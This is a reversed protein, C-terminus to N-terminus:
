ACTRNGGKGNCFDAPENVGIRCVTRAYKRHHPAFKEENQQSNYGNFYVNHNDEFQETFYKVRQLFEKENQKLVGRLYDFLIIQDNDILRVLGSSYEEDSYLSLRLILQCNKYVNRFCKVYHQNPPLSEQIKNSSESEEDNKESKQKEINKQTDIVEDEFRQLFTLILIVNTAINKSIETKRHYFKLKDPSREGKLASIILQDNYYFSLFVLIKVMPSIIKLKLFDKDKDPKEEDILSLINDNLSCLKSLQEHNFLSYKAFIECMKYLKALILYLSINKEQSSIVSEISSIINSLYNINLDNVYKSVKDEFEISSIMLLRQIPSLLVIDRVKINLYSSFDRQIYFKHFISTLYYKLQWINRSKSDFKREMIKFYKKETLINKIVDNFYCLPECTVRIAEMEGGEIGISAEQQVVKNDIDDNNEEEEIPEEEDNMAAKNIKNEIRNEIIYENKCKQAFFLLVQSTLHLDNLTNHEEFSYGIKQINKYTSHIQDVFSHFLNTFGNKSSTLINVFHLFTMGEFNYKKYFINGKALTRLKRFIIRIDSHNHNKCSCKFGKLDEIPRKILKEEAEYCINYCLLCINLNSQEVDQYTFNLDPITGWEGFIVPAGKSVLNNKADRIMQNVENKASALSKVDLYSHIEFIIHGEVSDAPRKMQKLPDQLHSNWTGSGSCAGYTSVILNRQANNGGTSRVVDVFSQAYANIANYASTAVAADYNKPTAFSSFCWSDYPDLMENYGEFLLHEDYDRFEEAIQKWVAEFREKQGAYDQESAVLWATNGAGTDHHINLICYMGQGIVYDVVEHVRKMWAAQIKTGIDDGDRDWATLSQTANNWKVSSFTAEMHPYWTVPVRIANFGAEKMMKMLEPKTIPQGWAKEYDSPTRSTWAEIWMNNVDGSNSDLTNGLNWGLKMNAVAQTATEFDQAFATQGIFLFSVSFLVKKVM